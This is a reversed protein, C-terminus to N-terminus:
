NKFFNFPLFKSIKILLKKGGQDLNGFTQFQCKICSERWIGPLNKKRNFPKASGFYIANWTFSPDIYAISTKRTKMSVTNRISSLQSDWRVLHSVLTSVITRSQVLTWHCIQVLLIPVGGGRFVTCCIQCTSLKGARQSMNKSDVPPLPLFSHSGTSTHWWIKGGEATFIHSPPTCQGQKRRSYASLRFM